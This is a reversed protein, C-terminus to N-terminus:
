SAAGDAEADEDEGLTHKEKVKIEAIELQAKLSAVGERLARLRVQESGGRSAVIIIGSVVDAVVAFQGKLLGALPTAARRVQMAYNATPQQSRVAVGMREVLSHLRQAGETATALTEMKIQGPGDLNSAM